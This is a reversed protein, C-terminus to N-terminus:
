KDVPLLCAIFAFILHVSHPTLFHDLFEPNEMRQFDNLTPLFHVVSGVVKLTLLLLLHYKHLM